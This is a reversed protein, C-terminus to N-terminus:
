ANFNYPVTMCQCQCVCARLRPCVHPCLYLCVLVCACVCVCVQCALLKGIVERHERELFDLKAQVEKCGAGGAGDGRGDVTNNQASCPVCM